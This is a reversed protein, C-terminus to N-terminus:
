STVPDREGTGAVTGGIVLSAELAVPPASPETPAPLISSGVGVTDLYHEVVSSRAQPETQGASYAPDWGNDESGSLLPDM